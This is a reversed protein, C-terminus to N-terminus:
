EGTGEAEKTTDKALIRTNMEEVCKAIFLTPLDKKEKDVFLLSTELYRRSFSEWLGGDNQDKAMPRPYYPDNRFFSKVAEEVGNENMSIEHCRNFDLLWMGVSPQILYTEGSVSTNSNSLMNKLDGAKPPRATIVLPLLSGLVFEVDDADIKAHWHMVALADAMRRALAHVDLNLDEMQDLHLNFNRLTFMRSPRRNRDCRKGLYIRALCDRNRPDEKAADKSPAPLGSPFYLDILANRVPRPLPPIREAILLNGAARYTEPFRSHNNAWFHDNSTNIYGYCRPVKININLNSLQDFSEQVTKHMILDNWLQDSQPLERKFVHSITRHSFVVGCSGIGIVDLTPVTQGIALEKELFRKLPNNIILREMQLNPLKNNNFKEQLPLDM